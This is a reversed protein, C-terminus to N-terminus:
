IPDKGPKIGMKRIEAAIEKKRETSSHAAERQLKAAERMDSFRRTGDPYAAQMLGPASIRYTYIVHTRLCEPCEDVTIQEPREALKFFADM